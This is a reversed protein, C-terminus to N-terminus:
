PASTRSASRLNRWKRILRVRTPVYNDRTSAFFTREEIYAWRVFAAAGDHFLGQAPPQLYGWFVMAPAAAALAFMAADLVPLGTRPPYLISTAFGAM